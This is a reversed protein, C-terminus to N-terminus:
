NLTLSKILLERESFTKSKNVLTLRHLTANLAELKASPRHIPNRFAFLGPSFRM